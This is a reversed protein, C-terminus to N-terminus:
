QGFKGQPVGGGGSLAQTPRMTDLRTHPSAFQTNPTSSHPQLDTWLSDTPHTRSDQRPEERLAGPGGLNSIETDAPQSPRVPDVTKPWYGLASYCGDEDEIADTM